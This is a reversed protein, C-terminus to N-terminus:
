AAGTAPTDGRERPLAATGGQFDRWIEGHPSTLAQGITTFLAIQRIARYDQFNGRVDKAFRPGQRLKLMGINDRDVRHM